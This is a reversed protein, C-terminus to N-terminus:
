AVGCCRKALLRQQRALVLVWCGRRSPRLLVRRLLLQELQRSTLVQGRQQQCM